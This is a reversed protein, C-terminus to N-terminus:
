VYVATSGITGTIGIFKELQLTEIAIRREMANSVGKENPNYAELGAQVVAAFPTDTRKCMKMADAINAEQLAGKVGKMFDERRVRSKRKFYVIKEIIVAISVVSFVSLVYMAIGGMQFIQWLKM